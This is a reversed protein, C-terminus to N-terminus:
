KYFVGRPERQLSFGSKNWDEFRIHSLYICNLGAQPFGPKNNNIKLGSEM